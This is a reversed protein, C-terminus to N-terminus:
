GADRQMADRERWAAMGGRLVRAEVGVMALMRAATRARPGEECYLVLVTDRTDGPDGPNRPDGPDSARGFAGGASSDDASRIASADRLLVGLPVVRSGPIAGAEHEAPERVDVLDVRKASATLALLEDVSIDSARAPVALAATGSSLAGDLPRVRRLRASESAGAPGAPGAAASPRRARITVETVRAGLADLVLMRGILPEGIGCILKIAETAMLSGAQGCLPGLVGAVSCSPVEGAAPPEPFVDRLTVAEVGAPPRSWFVSVQADFRLVSAWVVPVGLRACVDSVLYRTDFTDTGDLVLHYGSLIDAANAETLRERHEVVETRPALAHIGRAASATKPAGLDGTGHAIQRQLNSTDVLDDDVIGITGVGAAALYLAVPSGLGGAGLVCVKAAALRRQGEEGIEPLRLQRSARESEGAALADAPAVLPPLPM